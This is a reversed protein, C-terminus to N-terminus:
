SPPMAFLDAHGVTLSDAKEVVFAQWEALLAPAVLGIEGVSQVIGKVLEARFVQAEPGLRWPSRGEECRYGRRALGKVLRGHAGLGAATGLGKDQKQHAAFAAAVAADLPHSPQARIVGDFTLMSLLAVSRASLSAAFADIWADSALDFLASATVLDAGSVDAPLGSGLDHRRFTIRLSKGSLAVHVDEGERQVPGTAQACLQSRAAALNAADDDILTWHQEGPLLTHIARLASGTGAGLDVVAIRSRGQFAAACAELVAPCRADADLPERLALWEPSFATKM